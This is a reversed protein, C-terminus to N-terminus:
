AAAIEQNQVNYSPAEPERVATPLARAAAAIELAVRMRVTRTDGPAVSRHTLRAAATPTISLARAIDYPRFGCNEALVAFVRRALVSSHHNTALVPDAGFAEATLEALRVAGMMHITADDAPELPVLPFEVAAYADRLQFRPLASGIRM